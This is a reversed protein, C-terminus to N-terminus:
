KKNSNRKNSFVSKLISQNCGTAMSATRKHQGNLHVARHENRAESINM